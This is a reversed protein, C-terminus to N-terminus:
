LGTSSVVNDGVQISSKISQVSAIAVGEDASRVELVAVLDSTGRYVLLRAGQGIGDSRGINLEVLQDGSPAARLGTVKGYVPASPTISPAQTSSATAVTVPTLGAGEVQSTLAAVQQTAAAKQETLRRVSTQLAAAQSSLENVRDQLETLRTAQEVVKTQADQLQTNYVNLLETKSRDGTTMAEVTANLAQKDAKERALEARVAVIDGQLKDRETQVQKITENLSALTAGSKEQAELLKAKADAASAEAAQRLTTQQALDNQLDDVNAVFPVVLAVLLISLLTVLVVFVKTL